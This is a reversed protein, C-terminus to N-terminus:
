DCLFFQGAEDIGIREEEKESRVLTLAKTDVVMAGCMFAVCCM